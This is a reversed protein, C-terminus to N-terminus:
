EFWLYPLAQYLGLLVRSLLSLGFVTLSIWMLIESVRSVGVEFRMMLDTEIPKEANELMWRYKHGLLSLISLILSLLYMWYFFIYTKGTGLIWEVIFGGVIVSLHAYILYKVFPIWFGSYDDVLRRRDSAHEIRSMPNRTRVTRKLGKRLLEEAQYGLKRADDSLDQWDKESFNINVDVRQYPDYGWFYSQSSLEIYKRDSSPNAKKKM